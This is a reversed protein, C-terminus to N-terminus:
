DAAEFVQDLLAPGAGRYSIRMLRFHTRGLLRAPEAICASLRALQAPSMTADVPSGAFRSLILVEFDGASALAVEYTGDEGAVALSGGIKQLRRIAQNTEAPADGARLGTAPLPSELTLGAPWVIIRAGRDPLCASDSHRYTVRGYLGDVPEEDNAVPVEAPRTRVVVREPGTFRGVAWGGGFAAAVSMLVVGALVARPAAAPSASSVPAGATGALSSLVAHDDPVAPPPEAATPPPVVEVPALPELAIPEITGDADSRPAIPTAVPDPRVDQGTEAPAAALEALRDLANLLSPDRSDLQPAGPLPEVTGDLGPVRTARGCTPCDVIQGARSRSIGLFQRCKQCRFKIPM